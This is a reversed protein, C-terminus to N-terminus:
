TMYFNYLFNQSTLKVYTKVAPTSRWWPRTPQQKTTPTGAETTSAITATSGATTTATARRMRRPATAPPLVVGPPLVFDTTALTSACATTAQPWGLAAVFREVEPVGLFTIRLTLLPLKSSSGPRTNTGIRWPPSVLWFPRRWESFMATARCRFLHRQPCSSALGTLTRTRKHNPQSPSQPLEALM